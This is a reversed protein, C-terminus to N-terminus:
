KGICFRSFIEGLIDEVDVAGTLRQLSVMALRLDEALLEAPAEPSALVRELAQAASEFAKRHRERAILGAHGGGAAARAFAEMRKILGDINKGTEASIWYGDDFNQKEGPPLLDAKTL